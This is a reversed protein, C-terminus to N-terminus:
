QEVCMVRQKLRGITELDEWITLALFEGRDMIDGALMKACNLSAPDLIALEMTKEHAQKKLSCHLAVQRWMELNGITRQWRDM